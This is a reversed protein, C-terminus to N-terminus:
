DLKAKRFWREYKAPAIIVGINFSIFQEQLGGGAGRNGYLFSFNFSSNSQQSSIPLGLGATIGYESLQTGNEMYPMTGFYTGTRYRIRSFYNNGAKKDYDNVNPVFQVGLSFRQSNVMPNVPQENSFSARYAKWNTSTFDGFVTVQYVSKRKYNIDAKPRFNYSFGLSTTAPYIITGKDNEISDLISYTRKDTVDSAYFLHYDRNATINQQPTYVAGVRLQSNGDFDLNATYNMGLSYYGSHVRYDEQDVGGSGEPDNDILESRRESTVSGFLFSYNAGLVLKHRQFDLVKFSLGGLVQQTSGSGLYTYRFTDAEVQEKQIIEYGRRSFPQLGIAFGIRNSVPVVMAIQNLGVVRGDSSLGDSSYRSFRSSLGVSFLPQGKSLFVYSSPNYLNVTGSDMVATRSSGYGGFQPDELGGPEGIGQTSFPSSSYQAYAIGTLSLVFLLFLKQIM